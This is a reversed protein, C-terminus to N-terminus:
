GARRWDRAQANHAADERAKAPTHSARGPRREFAAAGGASAGSGQEASRPRRVMYYAAFTPYSM